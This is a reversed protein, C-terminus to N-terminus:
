TRRSRISCLPTRSSSAPCRPTRDSTPRRLCRQCHSSPLPFARPSTTRATGTRRTFCISRASRRGRWRVPMNLVSECGLSAILEHDSFVMRLDAQTRGIYAEGRDLVAETWPGPALRKRGGTPYPGPLNSYIRAAEGSDGDYTLITFLKHGIASKVAEDLAAFLADPQDVRGQAAAVACLLPDAQRKTRTM